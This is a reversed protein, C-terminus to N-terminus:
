PAVSTNSFYVTTAFGSKVVTATCRYTHGSVPVFTVFDQTGTQVSATAITDLITNPAAMDVLDYRCSDPIFTWNFSIEMRNSPNDKDLFLTQPAPANPFQKTGAGGRRNAQSWRGM